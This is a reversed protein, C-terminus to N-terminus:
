AEQLTVVYGSISTGSRLPKVHVIRWDLAKFQVIDGLEPTFPLGSAAFVGGTDSERGMGSAVWDKSISGPTMKIGAHTGTGPTAVGTAPDYEPSYASEKIVTVTRGIKDAIKKVGKLLKDDLITM